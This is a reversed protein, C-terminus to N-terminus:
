TPELRQQIDRFSTIRLFSDADASSSPHRDALIACPVMAAAAAVADVDPRDGIYLADGADVGLRDVAFQLGRPDPKFASVEPQQACVVVDFRGRIGLADLKPGADYDSLVGLGLGWARLSQLLDELDPQVFRPLLELPATDMWRTVDAAITDPDLGTREAAYRLQAGNLDSDGPEARLHEQANRYASLARMTGLGRIPHLLHARLLRVAMARRLPAQRYLTGDVDFIVAKVRRADFAVEPM